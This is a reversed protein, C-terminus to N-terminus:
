RPGDVQLGPRILHRLEYYPIEESLQQDFEPREPRPGILSMSGILVCWLQQLEDLRTRRLM